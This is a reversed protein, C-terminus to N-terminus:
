FRFAPGVSVVFQNSIGGYLVVTCGGSCVLTQLEVHLVIPLYEVALRVGWRQTPFFRSGPVSGSFSDRLAPPQPAWGCQALHEQSLRSLGNVDDLPWEHTFDGLFHDLTVPSPFPEVRSAHTGASRPSSDSAHQSQDVQVSDIRV